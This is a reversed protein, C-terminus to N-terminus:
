ELDDLNIWHIVVGFMGEGDEPSTQFLLKDGAFGRVFAGAPLLDMEVIVQREIDYLLPCRGTTTRGLVVYRGDTKPRDYSATGVATLGPDTETVVPTAIGNRIVHLGFGQRSNAGSVDAYEVSLAPTSGPDSLVVTGDAVVAMRLKALLLAPLDAIPGNGNVPVAPSSATFGELRFWAPEGRYLFPHGAHDEIKLLTRTAIDYRYLSTDDVGTTESIAPCHDFYYADGALLGPQGPARIATGAGGPLTFTIEEGTARVYVHMVADIADGTAWSCDRWVIYRDDAALFLAQRGPASAQAFPECTGSQLDCIGITSSHFSFGSPMDGNDVLGYYLNLDGDVLSFYSQDMEEGHPLRVEAQHAIADSYTSWPIVDCHYRLTDPVPTPTVPPSTPGATQRPVETASTTGTTTKELHRVALSVIDVTEEVGLPVSSGDRLFARLTDDQEVQRQFDPSDAALLRGLLFFSADFSSMYSRHIGAPPHKKIVAEMLQIREAHTTQAILQENALIYEVFPFRLRGFPKDAEMGARDISRYLRIMAQAADPRSYFAQFAANREELGRMGGAYVSDFLFIDGAMPYMMCTVALGPTSISALVETPVAIADLMQTHSTFTRWIEPTKDPTVPYVYADDALATAYWEGPANTPLTPETPLLPTTAAPEAPSGPVSCGAALLFAITLLLPLISRLIRAKIYPNRVKQIAM